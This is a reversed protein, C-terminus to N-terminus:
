FLFRHMCSGTTPFTAIPVARFDIAAGVHIDIWGRPDRLLASCGQCFFVSEMTYLSLIIYLIHSRTPGDERMGHRCAMVNAKEVSLIGPLGLPSLYTRGTSGKSVAVFSSCVIAIVTVSQEPKTQLVAMLAMLFGWPTLLDFVNKNMQQKQRKRKQRHKLYAPWFCIDLGCTRYGYGRLTRTIVNCGAFLELADFAEWM